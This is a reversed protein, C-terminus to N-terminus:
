LACFFCLRILRAGSFYGKATYLDFAWMTEPEPQEVLAGVKNIAARSLALERAVTVSCLASAASGHARQAACAADQRRRRAIFVRRDGYVTDTFALVPRYKFTSARVSPM